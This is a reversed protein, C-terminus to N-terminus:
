AFRTANYLKKTELPKFSLANGNNLREQLKDIHQAQAVVLEELGMCGYFKM